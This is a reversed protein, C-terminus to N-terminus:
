FKFCQFIGAGSIKIKHFIEVRAAKDCGARKNTKPFKGAQM